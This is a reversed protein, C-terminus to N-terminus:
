FLGGADSWFPFPLVLSYLFLRFKQISLLLLFHYTATQLSRSGLSTWEVQEHSYMCIIHTKSKNRITNNVFFPFFIFTSEEKKTLKRKKDVPQWILHGLEALFVNYHDHLSSFDIRRRPVWAIQRGIRALEMVKTM